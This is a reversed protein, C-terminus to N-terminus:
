PILCKRISTAMNRMLTFYADPGSEITAGIPDLIGTRAQTGEIIIDVLGPNIRPEAFVCTAGLDHIKDRLELIRRAGPSRESGIVGSGAATLDFRDEFYRYADHFVIFPKDHVPRMDAAIETTLDELRQLLTVTNAAYTTANDPDIESLAGAIVRAMVGANVPDLWIHMDFADHHEDDDSLEDEHGDDDHLEDEHGDDDHNHAEFTGGERLSRRVLGQAESLTIVRANEALTRVPGALSTELYEGVWLVIRADDMIKADSPRLSFTHPSVNGRMILHPKGVGAMLASVLSHVPKISVVVWDAAIAAPAAVISIFLAMAALALRFHQPRQIPTSCDRVATEPNM